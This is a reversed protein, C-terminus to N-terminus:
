NQLAGFGRTTALKVQEAGRAQNGMASMQDRASNVVREREDVVAQVAATAEELLSAQRERHQELTSRIWSAEVNQSELFEIQEQHAMSWRDLVPEWGAARIANTMDYTDCYTSQACVGVAFAVECTDGSCLSAIRERFLQMAALKDATTAINVYGLKTEGESRTM